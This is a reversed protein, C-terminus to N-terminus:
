VLHGCPDKWLYAPSAYHLCDSRVYLLADVSWVAAQVIPWISLEDPHYMSIDQILIDVVTAIGFLVDGLGGLFEVNSHWRAASDNIAIAIRQEEESINNQNELSWFTSSSSTSTKLKWLTFMASIAYMHVSAYRSINTWYSLAEWHTKGYDTDRRICSLIAASASLSAAIGFAIASGLQRRHGIHNRTRRLINQPVVLATNLILRNRQRGQTPNALIKHAYSKWSPKNQEMREKVILAWKVDIISNLLFISPWLILISRYLVYLWKDMVTYLDDVDNFKKSLIYDWSTGVLSFFGGAVFFSNSLISWFRDERLTSNQRRNSTSTSKSDSHVDEDQTHPPTYSTIQFSASERESTPTTQHSM